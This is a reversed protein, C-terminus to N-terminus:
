TVVGDDMVARSVIGQGSFIRSLAGGCGVWGAKGRRNQKPRRSRVFKTRGLRIRAAAGDDLM